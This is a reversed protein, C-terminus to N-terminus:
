ASDDELEEIQPMRKEKPEIYLFTTQGTPSNEDEIPGILRISLIDYQSQGYMPDDKPYVKKSENRDVARAQNMRMRFYTAENKSDFPLRVGKSASLAKDFVDFVDTFALRNTSRTM